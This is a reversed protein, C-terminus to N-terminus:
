DHNRSIRLGVQGISSICVRIAVETKVFRKAISTSVDEIQAKFTQSRPSVQEVKSAARVRGNLAHGELDFSAFDSTRIACPRRTQGRVLQRRHLDTNLVCASAFSNISRGSSTVSYGPSGPHVLKQLRPQLGDLVVQTHGLTTSTLNSLESRRPATFKDNRM